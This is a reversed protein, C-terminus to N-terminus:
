TNKKFVKEPIGYFFGWFFGGDFDSSHLHKTFKADRIEFYSNFYKEKSKKIVVFICRQLVSSLQSVKFHSPHRFKRGCDKCTFRSQNNHILM